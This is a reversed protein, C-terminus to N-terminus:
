YTEDHKLIEPNNKHGKFKLYGKDILNDICNEIGHKIGASRGMYWGIGTGLVYAALIFAETM